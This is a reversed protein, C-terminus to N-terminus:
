YSREFDEINLHIQRQYKSTQKLFPFPFNTIWPCCVKSPLHVKWNFNWNYKIWVYFLCQKICFTATSLAFKIFVCKRNVSLFIIKFNNHLHRLSFLAFIQNLSRFVVLLKLLRYSPFVKFSFLIFIYDLSAIFCILYQYRALRLSLSSDAKIRPFWSHFSVAIVASM